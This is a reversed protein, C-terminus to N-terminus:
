LRSMTASRSGRRASTSGRPPAPRTRRAAPASEPFHVPIAKKGVPRSAAAPQEGGSLWLVAAEFDGFAQVSWGHLTSLFAFLRARKHPDSRYLIALRLRRRDFGVDPFARVLEVLDGPTLTPNPGPETARLDVVTRDIGRKRCAEALAALAAKSAALDFKGRAGMRIFETARIIELDLPM